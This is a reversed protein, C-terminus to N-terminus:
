SQTAWSRQMLVNATDPKVCVPSGDSVKFLLQLVEKCQVDQASVGENMQIKPSMIPKATQDEMMNEDVMDTSTMNEDVMDTSTMNEDVMDTSTMNEDVM